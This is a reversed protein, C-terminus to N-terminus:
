GVMPSVYYHCLRLEQSLSKMSHVFHLIWWSTQEDIVLLMTICMVNVHLLLSVFHSHSKWIWHCFANIAIANDITAIGWYRKGDTTFQLAHNMKNTDNCFLNYHNFGSVVRLRNLEHWTLVVTTRGLLSCKIHSDNHDTPILKLIASILKLTWKEQTCITTLADNDYDLTLHLATIASKCLAVSNLRNYLGQYFIIIREVYTCVFRM